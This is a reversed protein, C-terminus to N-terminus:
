EGGMMHGSRVAKTELYFENHPNSPMIHRVREVVTIGCKELERVKLPNNTLLRIEEFGLQRLIEAAPLFIREDEGFGLQINADVTDVGAIQLQYSRMKNVLGIGRGEQQMYLIVGGGSDAMMRIAQRLQPGCDCKLSGLLDGTFCSSHVRVPVPRNNEPEGIVIAIHELGGNLPRFAVLHTNESDEMPVRVATVRRLTAGADEEHRRIADGEVVLIDNMQAWQAVDVDDSVDDPLASVLTAPLLRAIKALLISAGEANDFSELERCLDSIEEPQAPAAGGARENLSPYISADCIDVISPVHVETKLNFIATGTYHSLDHDNDVLGLVRARQYTLVLQPRKGTLAKHAAFSDNTVLEAMQVLLATGHDQVVAFDGRKLDSVARAVHRIGHAQASKRNQDM